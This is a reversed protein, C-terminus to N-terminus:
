PHPDQDDNGFIGLVSCNINDSREIPPTEEPGLGFKVRGGEFIAAAKYEPNKCAALRSVRGGWCHGMMRICDSFIDSRSSSLAWIARLDLITRDERWSDRKKKMPYEPAWWNSIFPIVAISGATSLKEGIDLTFLEEEIGTHAVPLHQCVIIAPHPVDGRPEFVFIQM